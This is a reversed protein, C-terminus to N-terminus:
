VNKKKPLSKFKPNLVFEKSFSSNPKYDPNPIWEAEGNRDLELGKSVSWTTYGNM